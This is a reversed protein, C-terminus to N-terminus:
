QAPRVTLAVHRRGRTASALQPQRHGAAGSQELSNLLASLMSQMRRRTLSNALQSRWLGSCTTTANPCLVKQFYKALLRTRSRLQSTMCIHHHHLQLPGAATVAAAAAAAAAVTPAAAAPSLPAAQASPPNDHSVHGTTAAPVPHAPQASVRTHQCLSALVKAEAIRGSARSMQEPKSCCGAVQMPQHQRKPRTGQQPPIEESRPPQKQLSTANVQRWNQTTAATPHHSPIQGPGSGASAVCVCVETLQRSQQVRCGHQAAPWSVETFLRKLSRSARAGRQVTNIRNPIGCAMLLVSLTRPRARPASHTWETHLM